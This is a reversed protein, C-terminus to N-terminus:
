DNSKYKIGKESSNNALYDIAKLLKAPDDDFYGLGFNCKNCLLGRVLYTIHCHDVSLKNGNNSLPSTCIACKYKQAAALEEYQQKTLGTTYKLVYYKRRHKNKKAWDLCKAKNCTKCDPRYGTAKQKDKYFESIAKETKCKTCVKTKM